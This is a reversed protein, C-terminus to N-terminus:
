LQPCNFKKSKEWCSFSHAISNKVRKGVALAAPLQIKIRIKRIELFREVEDGVALAAPL